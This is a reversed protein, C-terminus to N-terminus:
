SSAQQYIFDSVHTSINTGFQENELGWKVSAHTLFIGFASPKFPLENLVILGTFCFRDLSNYYGNVLCPECKLIGNSLLM